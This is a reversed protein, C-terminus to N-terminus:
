GAPAAAGKERERRTGSSATKKIESITKHGKKVIKLWDPLSPSISFSLEKEFYSHKRVLLSRRFSSSTARQKVLQAQVPQQQVLNIGSCRSGSM